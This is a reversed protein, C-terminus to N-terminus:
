TCAGNTCSLNQSCNIMQSSYKASYCVYERLISANICYDTYNYGRGLAIGHVTGQIGVVDGGDTDACSNPLTTTTTPITTTPPLTTTTIKTTTPKTPTGGGVVLGSFVANQGILVMALFAVAVVIMLGTKTKNNMKSGKKHYIYIHKHLIYAKPKYINNL